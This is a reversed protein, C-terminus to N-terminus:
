FIAVMAPLSSVPMMVNVVMALQWGSLWSISTDNSLGYADGGRIVRVGAFALVATSGVYTSLAVAVAYPNPM